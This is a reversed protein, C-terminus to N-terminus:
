SRRGKLASGQISTVRILGRLIYFDRNVSTTLRVMRNPKCTRDYLRIVELAGSVYAQM